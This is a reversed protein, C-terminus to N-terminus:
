QLLQAQSQRAPNLKPIPGAMGRICIQGFSEGLLSVTISLTPKRLASRMPCFQDQGAVPMGCRNLQRTTLLLKQRQGQQQRLQDNKPTSPVSLRQKQQIVRNRLEIPPM